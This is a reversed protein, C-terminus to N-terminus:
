PQHGRGQLLAVLASCKPLVASTPIKESNTKVKASNRSLVVRLEPLFVRKVTFLFPNLFLKVNPATGLAKKYKNKHSDSSKQVHIDMDLTQKWKWTPTWTLIQSWSRTWTKETETNWNNGMHMEIDMATSMNMSMCCSCSRPCTFYMNILMTMVHVQIYPFMFLSM